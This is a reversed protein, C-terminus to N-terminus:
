IKAQNVFFAIVFSVIYLLCGKKYIIKLKIRTQDHIEIIKVKNELTKMTTFWLPYTILIFALKAITITIWNPSPFISKPLGCKDIILWFLAICILITIGAIFINIIKRTNEKRKNEILSNNEKIKELEEIKKNQEQLKEELLNTKTVEAQNKEALEKSIKKENELAAAHEKIKEDIEIQKSEAEMAKTSLNKELETVRSHLESSEKLREIIERAQELNFESGRAKAVTSAKATLFTLEKDSLMSNFINIEQETLEMKIKKIKIYLEDAEKYLAKTCRQRLQAEPINKEEGGALLWMYLAFDGTNVIPSQDEKKIIQNKILFNKAITSLETNNTLFIKSTDLIDGRSARHNGILSIIKKISEVDNEIASDREHISSVLSHLEPHLDIPISASSPKNNQQKTIRAFPKIGAEINGLLMEAIRKTASSRRIRSALPGRGNGLAIEQLTAKIVSKVEDVCHDLVYITAGKKKALSIIKKTYSCTEEDNLELLSLVIPSDLYISLANLNKETGTGFKSIADAAFSGCTLKSITKFSQTNKEESNLIFLNAIQVLADNKIDEHNTIALTIIEIAKENSIEEHLSSEKAFSIFDEALNTIENEFNDIEDSQSKKSFRFQKKKGDQVPTIIGASELEKTLRDIAWPHIELGYNHEVWQSLKLPDFLKGEEELLIPKFLEILAQIYTKGDENKSALFVYANATKKNTM